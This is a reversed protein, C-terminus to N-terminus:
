FRVGPRRPVLVAGCSGARRASRGPGVRADVVACRSLVGAAAAAAAAANSTSTGGPVDPLCSGDAWLGLPLVGGRGLGTARGGRCPCSGVRGHGAEAAASIDRRRLALRETPCPPKSFSAAASSPRSRSLPPPPARAKVLSSCWRSTRSAAVSFRLPRFVKARTVHALPFSRPSHWKLDCGKNRKTAGVRRAACKADATAPSNWAWFSVAGFQGM